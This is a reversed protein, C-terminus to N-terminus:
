SGSGTGMILRTQCHVVFFWSASVSRSLLLHSSCFHSSGFHSRDFQDRDQAVLIVVVILLFVEFNAHHFVFGFVFGRLSM